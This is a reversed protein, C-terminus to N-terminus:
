AVGTTMPSNLNNRAIAQLASDAKAQDLNQQLGKRQLRAIKLQEPLAAAQLLTSALGAYGLMADASKYWPTDQQVETAGLGSRNFDRITKAFAKGAASTKWDTIAKQLGANFQSTPVSVPTNAMESALGDVPDASYSTAKKNTSTVM